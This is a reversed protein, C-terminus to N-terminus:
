FGRELNRVYTQAANMTQAEADRRAIRANHRVRSQETGYDQGLMFCLGGVLVTVLGISVAITGAIERSLGNDHAITLAFMLSLACTIAFMLLLAWYTSRMERTTHFGFM